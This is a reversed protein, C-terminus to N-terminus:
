NDNQPRPHTPTQILEPTCPELKASHDCYRGILYLQYDAPYAYIMSQPDNLLRDYQRAAVEDTAALWPRDYVGAKIDRISYLNTVM